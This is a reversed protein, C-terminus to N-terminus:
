TSESTGRHGGSLCFTGDCARGRRLKPHEWPSMFRTPVCHRPEKDQCGLYCTFACASWNALIPTWAMRVGFGGM